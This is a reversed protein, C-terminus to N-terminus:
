PESRSVHMSGFRWGARDQEDGADGDTDGDGTDSGDTGDHNEVANRTGTDDDRDGDRRELTGSWRTEYDHRDGTTADTWAMRVTDGFWAHEGREGVVLGHSEIEWDTTTETQSRLAEAIEGYGTLRETIGFKVANSEELFYPSLSEGAQLAAYYARITAAADTGRDAADTAGM